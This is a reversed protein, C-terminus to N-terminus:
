PGVYEIFCLAYYPNRIDISQGLGTPQATVGSFSARASATIGAGALDISIGTFSASTEIAGAQSNIPGIFGDLPGGGSGVYDVHVHGRDTVTHMHGHDTIDVIHSHGSDSIAHTHSPLQNTTLVVNANGGSANPAYSNGAGVVFKDTLNATGNTGDCLQWGAGWVSPINAVAGHYMKVEGVKYLQDGRVADKSTTSITGQAINTIKQGNMDVAATPKLGSGVALQKIFASLAQLYGNANPGVTESGQPSNNNPNTDLDNISSPIPM